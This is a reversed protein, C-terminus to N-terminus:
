QNHKKYNLLIYGITFIIISIVTFSPTLFFAMDKKLIAFVFNGIISLLSLLMFALTFREFRNKGIYCYIGNLGCFLYSISFLALAFYELIVLPFRETGQQLLRPIGMILSAFSLTLFGASGVLLFMYGVSRRGEKIGGNSLLSMQSEQALLKKKGKDYFRICRVRTKMLIDLSVNSSPELFIMCVAEWIFVCAIIDIVEVITEEEIGSGFWDHVQGIFMLVLLLIGVVILLCAKLWKRKTNKMGSYHNFEIADNISNILLAPEYGQYDDIEFEFIASYDQPLFEIFSGMKEIVSSDAYPIKKTKVHDITMDNVSDYDFTFTVTKDNRDVVYYREILDIQKSELPLKEGINKEKMSKEGYIWRNYLSVVNGFFM